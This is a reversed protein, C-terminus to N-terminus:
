TMQSLAKIQLQILRPVVRSCFVNFSKIYVILVRHMLCIYPELLVPYPDPLPDISKIAIHKRFPEESCFLLVFM